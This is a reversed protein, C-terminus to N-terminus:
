CRRGNPQPRGSPYSTCSSVCIKSAVIFLILSTIRHGEVSSTKSNACNKRGADACPCFELARVTFACPCPTIASANSCRFNVPASTTSRWSPVTSMFREESRRSCASPVHDALSEEGSSIRKFIVPPSSLPLTVPVPFSTSLLSLFDILSSVILPLSNSARSITTLNIASAGSSGWFPDSGFRTEPSHMAGICGHGGPLTAVMKRLNLNQHLST